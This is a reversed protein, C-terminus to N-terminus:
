TLTHYMRWSASRAYRSILVRSISTVGFTSTDAEDGRRSTLQRVIVLVSCSFKHRGARQM